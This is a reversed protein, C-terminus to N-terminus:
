AKAIIPSLEPVLRPSTAREGSHGIGGPPSSARINPLLARLNCPAPGQRHADSERAFVTQTGSVEAGRRSRVGHACDRQGM